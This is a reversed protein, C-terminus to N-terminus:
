PRLVAAQEEQWRIGGFALGALMEPGEGIAHQDILVEGAELVEFVGLQRMAGRQLLSGVADAGGRLEMPPGLLDVFVSSGSPVSIMWIERARMLNNQNIM